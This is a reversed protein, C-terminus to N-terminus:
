PLYRSKFIFGVSMTGPVEAAGELAPHVLVYPGQKSNKQEIPWFGAAWGSPLRVFAFCGPWQHLTAGPVQLARKVPDGVRIGDPSTFERDRIEIHSVRHKSSVGLFYTREGVTLRFEEALDASQILIVNGTSRAKRPLRSGIRPPAVSEAALTSPGGLYGCWLM